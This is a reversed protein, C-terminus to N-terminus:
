NLWTAHIYVSFVFVSNVEIEWSCLDGAVNRVNVLKFYFNMWINFHQWQKSMSQHFVLSPTNPVSLRLWCEHKNYPFIHLSLSHSLSDTGLMGGKHEVSFLFGNLSPIVYPRTFSSLNIKNRQEVVGRYEKAQKFQFQNQFMIIIACLSLM